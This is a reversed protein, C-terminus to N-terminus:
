RSAADSAGSGQLSTERPLYTVMEDICQDIREFAQEFVRSSQGWPDKIGRGPTPPHNFDGLFVIPARLDTGFKKLRRPQGADMVVILDVEDLMAPTVLRSRHASTDLGRGRAVDVAATPPPRGPGIFGASEVEISSDVRERLRAEAYPSRCVNGLCLFLVKRAEPLGRLRDVARARRKPHLLRDLSRFALRKLRGAIARTQLLPRFSRKRERPVIM